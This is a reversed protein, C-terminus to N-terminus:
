RLSDRSVEDDEREREFESSIEIKLVFSENGTMTEREVEAGKM